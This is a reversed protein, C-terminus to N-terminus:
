YYYLDSYCYLTSFDLLFKNAVIEFFNDKANYMYLLPAYENLIRNHKLKELVHATELKNTM